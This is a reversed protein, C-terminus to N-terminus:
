RRKRLLFATAGIAAFVVGVTLAFLFLWLVPTQIVVTVSVRASNGAADQVTLEALYNGSGSYTHNTTIGEATTGDGFSWLYSVITRDDESKSANFSVLSGANATQNQGANAVPPTTDLIISDDHSSVLGAEDRYQVIVSKVGDDDQLSWSKSAAYQEWPSWTQNDNSFRMQGVGSGDDTAALNLNVAKSNTYAEGKNILISGQPIGTDLTITDSLSASIHGAKDKIQYYVTKEGDGFTLVWTKSSSPTEWKETDWVGDNSFRAEHVGSISDTATFTLMTSTSTTFTAGENIQISGTPAAKDLKVQTLMKHPSEENGVRDISWYEVTNMGGESTVLPQGNINVSLISGSNMRYYTESVGNPDTANLNISFDSTHWLGDYADTTIPQSLTAITENSLESEGFSNVATIQYYYTEGYNVEKDVYSLVNEVEKFFDETHSANGRYIRFNTVEAGGYSSPPSWSLSITANGEAAELNEPEAPTLAVHKGNINKIQNWDSTFEIDYFGDATFNYSVPISGYVFTIEGAHVPIRIKHNMYDFMFERALFPTRLDSCFEERFPIALSGTIPVIGYLFLTAAACTTADNSVASGTVGRFYGDQNLGSAILGKWAPSSGMLMERWTLKMASTFDPFLGQLAILAGMTEWLRLQSNTTAHRIVGPNAWGPSSWNSALLKYNLDQIVRDWYQITGGKLAKYEAIIQAFNGMECEVISTNGTYGYYGYQTNWHEQVGNWASDSYASANPVGQESFKLFVGLTEAHEDYYRSSYSKAWDEQPDCWLMEGSVSGDPRKEYAKAFDSFAQTANWKDALGFEEAYKYGWLAFRHYVMYCGSNNLDPDGYTTKTTIPLSGCMRIQQLATQTANWITESSYGSLEALRAVYLADVYDGRGIDSTIAEDFASEEKGALIMAWNSTWSNGYTWNVNTIVSNLTEALTTQESAYAAGVSTSMCISTASMSLLLIALLFGFGLRTGLNM